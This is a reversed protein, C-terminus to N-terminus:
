ELISSIVSVSRSVKDSNDVIRKFSFAKFVFYSRLLEKTSKSRFAKKTDNFDPENEVTTSYLCSHPQRALILLRPVIGRQLPVIKSM